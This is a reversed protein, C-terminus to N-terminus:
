IWRLDRATNALIRQLQPDIKFRVQNSELSRRLCGDDHRETAAKWDCLMEVLDLLTMDNVGEAYHEPHHSNNAYHHDLAPKMQRLNERYEESGYTLGKLREGYEAFVEAEPSELKSRDHVLARRSLEAITLSMLEQVRQIHAYTDAKTAKVQLINRDNEDSM